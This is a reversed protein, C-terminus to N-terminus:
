RLDWMLATELKKAAEYYMAAEQKTLSDPGDRLIRESLNIAKDLEKKAKKAGDKGGDERHMAMMEMAVKFQAVPNDAM